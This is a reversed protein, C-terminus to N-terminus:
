IPGSRARRSPLPFSCDASNSQERLLPIADQVIHACELIADGMQQMEPAFSRFQFLTIAKATQQMEGIADDMPTILGKIDSRDFPTIFARRVSQLVERTITDASMEYELIAKRHRSAQEGGEPLGQLEVAGALM